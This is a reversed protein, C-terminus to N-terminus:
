YAPTNAKSCDPADLDASRPCLFRNLNVTWWALKATSSITRDAAPDLYDDDNSDYQRPAAADYTNPSATTCMVDQVDDNCHSGTIFHPAVSQLAGMNHTLEHLVPACFGGTPQGKANVTNVDWPRYAMAVSTRNSANNSNRQTDPFFDGQGCYPSSADLWVFYKKNALNLGAKSLETRVDNFQSTSSLQATTYRSAHVVTIDDYKVGNAGQRLDWRFGMGTATDLNSSARRDEAQFMPAYTSFRSTADKGYLYVPHITPLSTVDAADRTNVVGDYDGATWAAAPPVGLVANAVDAHATGAQGASGTMTGSAGLGVLTAGVAAAAILRARM